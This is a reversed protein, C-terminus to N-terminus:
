GPAARTYTFKLQICDGIAAIGDAQLGFGARRCGSLEGGRGRGYWSDPRTMLTATWQDALHGAAVWVQDPWIDSPLFFIDGGERVGRYIITGESM